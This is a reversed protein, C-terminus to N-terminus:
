PICYRDICSAMLITYLMTCRKTVIDSDKSGSPAAIGIAGQAM